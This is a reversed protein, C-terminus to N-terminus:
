IRNSDIGFRYIEGTQPRESPDNIWLAKPFLYGDGDCGIESPGVEGSPGVDGLMPLLTEKQVPLMMNHFVFIKQPSSYM